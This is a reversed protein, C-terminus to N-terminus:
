ALVAYYLGLAITIGATVTGAAHQFAFTSRKIANAIILLALAPAIHGVAYAFALGFVGITGLSSSSAGIALLIPTCCPSLAISTSVGLLFASGHSTELATRDACVHADGSSAARVGSVVLTVALGWYIMSSFRALEGVLSGASAIAVCIAITGALFAAVRPVRGKKQAGVSVIAVYRPAVCPGVSTAIGAVCALLYSAPNTAPTVVFDIVSM